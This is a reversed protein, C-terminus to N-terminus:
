RFNPSIASRYNELASVEGYTGGLLERLAAGANPDQNLPAPLEIQIQNVRIFV